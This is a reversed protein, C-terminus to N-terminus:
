YVNILDLATSQFSILNFIGARALNIFKSSLGFVYVHLLWMVTLSLRLFYIYLLLAQARLYQPFAPYLNPYPNLITRPSESNHNSQNM